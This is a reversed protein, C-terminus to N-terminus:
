VYTSRMFPMLVARAGQPISSEPSSPVAGEEQPYASTFASVEDRLWAAVTLIAAHAVDEPVASFGWNGTIEITRQAFRTSPHGSTPNLLLYTYVSLPAPVPRLRYEDTTLTVPSSTDTDMRVQSVSRLDYPALSVYGREDSLFNRATASATPAFERQTYRMIADSARTILSQIITDQNTDATPKQLFSRVASLTTLDQAAM